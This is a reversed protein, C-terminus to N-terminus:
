QLKVLGLVLLVEIMIRVITILGAVGSDFNFHDLKIADGIAYFITFIWSAIWTARTSEFYTKLGLLMFICLTQLQVDFNFTTEAQEFNYLRLIVRSLM